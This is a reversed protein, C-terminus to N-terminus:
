GLERLKRVASRLHTQLAQIQKQNLDELMQQELHSVVINAEDLLKKGKKTVSIQIIRGHNPDPIRIIWGSKEMVKILENAAQPSVMSREALKANSLAGSNSFISLATYQRLSLGLPAIRKSIEYRVAREARGLLYAIGSPENSSNRIRKQGKIGSKDASSKRANM